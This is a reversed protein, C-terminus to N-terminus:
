ELASIGSSREKGASTPLFRYYVELMLTNLGQLYMDRSDGAAETGKLHVLKGSNGEYKFSGDENQAPLVDAIIAQNMAEWEAGGANRMVQVAYYWGYLDANGGDYDFTWLPSFDKEGLNTKPKERQKLGEMILSVAEKVPKSNGKHWQQLCLAGVATLNPNTDTFFYRVMETKSYAFKGDGLYSTEGTHTLALKMVKDLNPLKDERKPFAANVAKLAQMQWGAVSLDDRDSPKYGYDWSGVLNQGNIIIEAAKRVTSELEPIPFQLSRSITLAEALAYTGIAHEYVWPNQTLSSALRNQNKAAKDILFTIGASVTAGYEESQPGECHGLYCLLALGTMGVPYSKGWSGDPNQKNKFWALSKKVAAEIEPTGGAERVMRLREADTCRGKMITPILAAVGLQGAGLGGLGAGIGPGKGTGTGGAGAGTSAMEMPLESGMMADAADPLSFSATSSTSSIRKNNATTMVRKSVAKQVQASDGKPGGGSNGPLFDLKEEPPYVMKYFFAFALVGFVLHVAISITFAGLGMKAIMKALKSKQAPLIVTDQDQNM